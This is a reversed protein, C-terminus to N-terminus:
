IELTVTATSQGHSFSRVEDEQTGGAVHCGIAASETRGHAEGSYGVKNVPNGVLSANGNLFLSFLCAKYKHELSM